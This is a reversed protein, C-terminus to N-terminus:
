KLGNEKKILYPHLIRDPKLSECEQDLEAETVSCYKMALLVYSVVVIIALVLLLLLGYEYHPIPGMTNDLTCITNLVPLLAYFLLSGCYRSLFFFSIIIAQSRRPSEQYFFCLSGITIFVEACAILAYPTFLLFISSSGPKFFLINNFVATLIM